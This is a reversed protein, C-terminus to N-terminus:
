HDFFREPDEYDLFCDLAFLTDNYRSSNPNIVSWPHDSSDKHFIYIYSYGLKKVEDFTLNDLGNQRSDYFDTNNLDEGLSHVMNGRALKEIEESDGWYQSLIWGAGYADPRDLRNPRVLEIYGDSTIETGTFTGDANQVFVAAHTSM